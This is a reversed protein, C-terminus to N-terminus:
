TRVVNTPYQFNTVTISRTNLITTLMLIINDGRPNTYCLSARTPYIYAYQLTNTNVVGNNEKHYIPFTTKVGM